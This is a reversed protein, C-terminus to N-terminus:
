KSFWWAPPFEIDGTSASAPWVQVRRGEQWQVWYGLASSDPDDGQIFQHDAFRITGRVLKINTQELAAILAETELSKAREVADKIVYLAEYGAVCGNGRPPFGYKKKFNEYFKLTFPTATSRTNGTESLTVITFTARHDTAESFGPDEAAGVFGVPLVPFGMEYWQTFLFKTEPRYGWLFLVEAGSDRVKALYEKFEKNDSPYEVHGVIEWGNKGALNKIIGGAKSCMENDETLIYMRKIDFKEKIHNLLAIAEDIYAKVNGSMRFSYHNPKWGPTFCGSNVLNVIKHKEFVKLVEDCSCIASLNPGGSVIDPKKEVILKEIATAVELCNKKGTLDETDVIELKIQRKEGGVNIGGEANIEEQAMLLGREANEGYSATRPLPCGIIVPKTEALLSVPLIILILLLVHFISFRFDIKMNM